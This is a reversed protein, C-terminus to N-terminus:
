SSVAKRKPKKTKPSQSLRFQAEEVEKEEAIQLAAIREEEKLAAVRRALYTIVVEDLFQIEEIKSTLPSGGRHFLMVEKEGQRRALTLRVVLNCIWKYLSKTQYLDLSCVFHSPNEGRDLIDFFEKYVCAEESLGDFMKHGPSIQVRRRAGPSSAPSDSSSSSDIERQLRKNAKQATAVLFYRKHERSPFRSKREPSGGEENAADELAAAQLSFSSSVLFFCVVIYLHRM